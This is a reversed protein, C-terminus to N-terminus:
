PARARPDGCPVGPHLGAAHHGVQLPPRMHPSSGQPGLQCGAPPAPVGTGLPAAAASCPRVRGGALCTKRCAAPTPCASSACRSASPPPRCGCRAQRGTPRPGLLPPVGPVGPQSQRRRALRRSTCRPAAAARRRRRWSPLLRQWSAEYRPLRPTRWSHCSSWGWSTRRVAAPGGRNNACGQASAGPGCLGALTGGRAAQPTCGPRTAACRSSKACSWAQWRTWARCRLRSTRM